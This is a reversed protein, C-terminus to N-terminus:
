AEAVRRALEQYNLTTPDQPGVASGLTWEVEAAQATLATAALTAALAWDRLRM